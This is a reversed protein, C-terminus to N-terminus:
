TDDQDSEIAEIEAARQAARQAAYEQLTQGVPKRDAAKASIAGLLRKATGSIRILQDADVALGNVLDAQMAEAQMTLAASQRVLAMESETLTGGVEDEYARILDRFRRAGASRADVKQHLRTGNSVASRTAPSPRAAVPRACM